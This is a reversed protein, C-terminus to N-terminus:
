KRRAGENGHAARIRAIRARGVLTICGTIFPLASTPEPIAIRVNDISLEPGRLMFSDIEGTLILEGQVDPVGFPPMTSPIVTVLVGGINSGNLGSFDGALSATVGNLRFTNSSGAYFLMSVHRTQDPLVFSVETSTAGVRLELGDAGADFNLPSQGSIRVPGTLVEFTVGKSNIVEGTSFILDATLDEFDTFGAFACPSTLLVVLVGTLLKKTM